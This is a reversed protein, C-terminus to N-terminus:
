VVATFRKPVSVMTRRPRIGIERKCIGIQHVAAKANGAHHLGGQAAPVMSDDHDVIKPIARIIMAHTFYDSFNCADVIKGHKLDLAIKLPSSGFRQQGLVCVIRSLTMRWFPNTM